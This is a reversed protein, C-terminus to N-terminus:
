QPSHVSKRKLAVAQVARGFQEALERDIMTGTLALERDTWTRGAAPPRTGRRRHIASLKARELHAAPGNTPRADEARETTHDPIARRQVCLISM